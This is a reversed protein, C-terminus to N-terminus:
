GIRSGAVARVREELRHPNDSGVYVMSHDRLHLVLARDGRATWAVAGNRGKRIGWGGFEALPSYRVSEMTAIDAYAIRKRILGSSGIGVSMFDRYLRVTLGALFWQVGLGTAAVALGAWLRVHHPAPGAVLVSGLSLLMAGWFVISIWGPWQSTEKYVARSDSGMADRETPTSAGM